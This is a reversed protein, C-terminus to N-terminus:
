TNWVSPRRRSSNPGSPVWLTSPPSPSKTSMGLAHDVALPIGAGSRVFGDDKLHALAFDEDVEIAGSRGAGSLEQGLQSDGTASFRGRDGVAAAVVSWSEAHAKVARDGAGLDLSMLPQCLGGL